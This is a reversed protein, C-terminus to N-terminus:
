IARAEGCTRSAYERLDHLVEEENEPQIFRAFGYHGFLCIYYEQNNQRSAREERKCELIAWKGNKLYVTLDPFGQIYDADNKIVEAVFPMSRLKRILAAQFVSERKMKIVSFFILGHKPPLCSGCGSIFTSNSECWRDYIADHGYILDSLPRCEIGRWLLAHKQRSFFLATHKM